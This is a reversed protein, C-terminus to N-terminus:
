HSRVFTGRLAPCASTGSRLQWIMSSHGTINVYFCCTQDGNTIYVNGGECASYTVRARGFNDIWIDHGFGTNTIVISHTSSANTWEGEIEPLGQALLQNAGLGISVAVCTAFRSGIM